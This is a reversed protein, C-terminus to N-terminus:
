CVRKHVRASPLRSFKCHIGHIKTSKEADVQFFRLTKDLGATLLLPRDTNNPGGGIGPHFHVSQVVSQNPDSLNVDPCRVINLMNPPLSKLESTQLLLPLSSSIIGDAQKDTDTVEAPATSSKIVRQQANKVNAWDTRATLEATTRFRKRLRSEVDGGSLASAEAEGRHTQLKRLRSTQLIDVQVREDDDDVWAGHHERATSTSKKKSAEFRKEEDFDDTEDGNESQDQDDIEGVRDIQFLPKEGSNSVFPGEADDEDSSAEAFVTTTGLAHDGSQRATGFLQETLRREEELDDQEQREKYRARRNKKKQRRHHKNPKHKDRRDDNTDNTNSLLKEKSRTRRRGPEESM